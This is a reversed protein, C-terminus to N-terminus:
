IADNKKGFGLEKTETNSGEQECNLHQSKSNKVIKLNLEKNGFIETDTGVAIAHLRM